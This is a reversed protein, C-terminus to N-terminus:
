ASLRDLLSLRDLVTALWESPEPPAPPPPPTTVPPAPAPPPPAATTVPAATHARAPAPASPAAPADLVPPPAPSAGSGVFDEVVWTQTGLVLIGLGVATYRPNVMNKYHAPSNTLGDHIWQLSPGRGVNESVRSFGNLQSSLNPNHSIEGATAMVLAWANAVLSAVPDLTVPAVGVGARVQNIGNLLYQVPDAQGPTAPTLLGGATGVLDGATGALGPQAHAPPVALAALLGVVIAIGTVVRGGRLATRM